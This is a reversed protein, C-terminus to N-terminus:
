NLTALTLDREFEPRTDSLSWFQIRGRAAEIGNVKWRPQGSSDPLIDNKAFQM